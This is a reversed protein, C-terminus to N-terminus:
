ESSGTGSKTRANTSVQTSIWVRRGLPSMRANRGPLSSISLATCAMLTFAIGEREQGQIGPIQKKMNRGPRKNRRLISQRPSACLQNDARQVGSQGVIFLQLGQLGGLDHLVASGHALTDNGGVDSLCTYGDGANDINNISAKDLHALDLAM